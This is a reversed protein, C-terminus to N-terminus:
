TVNLLNRSNEFAHLAPIDILHYNLISTIRVCKTKHWPSALSCHVSVSKDYFTGIRCNAKRYKAWFLRSPESLVSINAPLLYILIPHRISLFLIHIQWVLRYKIITLPMSKTVTGLRKPIGGNCRSYIGM